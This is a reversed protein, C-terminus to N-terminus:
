MQLNVQLFFSRPALPYDVGTFGPAPGITNLLNKGSLSFSIEQDLHRFLRIGDTSVNFDLLFYAPLTYARAGLVINTSSARRQGIYSGRLAARGPLPGLQSALGAHVMMQPYIGGETGIIQGFYGDNQGNQGSKVETHSLEFSLNANFWERYQVEAKSEWSLSNSRTINRAIRNIGQQVFETKDDLRNYAVASSLDFAPRPQYSLQFELTNVFQPRLQPNGVVDGVAAPVAYLLFPSPAQFASGSLLKAHLNPLPSGVLGIRRSLQGGYVNHRDYRLGATLGVRGELARLTAQLYAGANMFTKRGQYVSAAGIVEGRQAGQV